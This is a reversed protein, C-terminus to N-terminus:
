LRGFCARTFSVYCFFRLSWSSALFSSPHSLQRRSARRDLLLLTSSVLSSASESSCSSQRLVCSQISDVSSLSTSCGILSVGILHWATGTSPSQPARQCISLVVSHNSVFNLPRFHWGSFWYRTAQTFRAHFFGM